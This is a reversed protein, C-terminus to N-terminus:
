KLVEKIYLPLKEYDIHIISNNATLKVLNTEWKMWQKHYSKVKIYFEGVEYVKGMCTKIGVSQRVSYSIYDGVSLVLGTVTKM